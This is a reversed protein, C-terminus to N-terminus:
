VGVDHGLQHGQAHLNAVRQGLGEAVHQLTDLTSVGEYNETVADHVANAVRVTEAGETEPADAGFVGGFTPHESRLRRGEVHHTGGENAFELGAFEDRNGVVHHGRGLEQSRSFTALLEADKLEDVESSGVGIEHAVLDVRGTTAHTLVQSTLAGDFRVEHHTDGVRANWGRFPEGGHRTNGKAVSQHLIAVDATRKDGGILDRSALAHSALEVRQALVNLSLTEHDYVVGNHAAGRGLREHGHQAVGPSLFDM